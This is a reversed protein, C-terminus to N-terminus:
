PKVKRKERKLLVTYYISVCYLCISGIVYTDTVGSLFPAAAHAGGSLVVLAMAAFLVIIGTMVMRSAKRNLAEIREENKM